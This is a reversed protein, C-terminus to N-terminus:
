EAFKASQSAVARWRGEQKVFVDTWIYKGSSDKGHEMSKETNTGTVIATSGFIRVTM